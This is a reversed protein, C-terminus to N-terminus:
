HQRQRGLLEPVEQLHLLQGAACAPMLVHLVSHPLQQHMIHRPLKLSDPPAKSSASIHLYPPQKLYNAPHQAHQSDLCVATVHVRVSALM